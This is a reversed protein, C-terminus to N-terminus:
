SKRYKRRVLKRTLYLVLFTIDLSVDLENAVIGLSPFTVFYPEKSDVIKIVYNQTYKNMTKFLIYSICECIYRENFAISYNPILDNGQSFGPPPKIYFITTNNTAVYECFNKILYSLDDKKDASPQTYDIIMKKLPQYKNLTLTLCDAILRAENTWIFADSYQMVDFYQSEVEMVDDMYWYM